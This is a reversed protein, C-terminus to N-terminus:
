HPWTSCPCGGSTAGVLCWMMVVVVRGRDDWGLRRWRAVLLEEREVVCCSGIWGFYARSWSHWEIRSYNVVTLLM